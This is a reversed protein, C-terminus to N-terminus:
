HPAHSALARLARFCDLDDARVRRGASFIGGDRRLGNFRAAADRILFSLM